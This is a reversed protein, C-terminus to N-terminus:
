TTTTTTTTTHQYCYFSHIPQQVDISVVKMLLTFHVGAVDDGNNTKTM